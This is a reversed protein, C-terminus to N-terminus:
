RSPTGKRVATLRSPLEAPSLAKMLAGAMSSGSQVSMRMLVM